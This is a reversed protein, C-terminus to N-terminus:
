FRKPFIVGLVRGDLSSIIKEFPLLTWPLLLILPHQTSADSSSSTIIVNCRLIWVYSLIQVIWMSYEYQQQFTMLYLVKRWPVQWYPNNNKFKKKFYNGRRIKKLILVYSSATIVCFWSIVSGIGVKFGDPYDAAWTTVQQLVHCHITFVRSMVTSSVMTWSSNGFLLFSVYSGGTNYM